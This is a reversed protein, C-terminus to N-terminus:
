LTDDLIVIKEVSELIAPSLEYAGGSYTISVLQGVRFDSILINTYHWVLVTDNSVTFTFEARHNIDNIDLGKVLFDRDNISEITAYFTEPSPVAVSKKGLFFSLVVFFCVAIVQISVIGTKKTM